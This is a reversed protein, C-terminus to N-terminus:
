RQLSPSISRLAGPWKQHCVGAGLTSRQVGSRNEGKEGGLISSRRRAPDTGATGAHSRHKERSQVGFDINLRPSPLAAIAHLPQATNEYPVSRWGKAMGGLKVQRMLQEIQEAM